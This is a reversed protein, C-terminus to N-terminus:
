KGSSSLYACIQLEKSGTSALHGNRRPKRASDDRQQALNPVLLPETRGCTILWSHTLGSNVHQSHFIVHASVPFLGIIDVNVAASKIM